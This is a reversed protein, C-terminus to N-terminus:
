VTLFLFIQINKSLSQMTFAPRKDSKVLAFPPKERIIIQTGNTFVTVLCFISILNNSNHPM